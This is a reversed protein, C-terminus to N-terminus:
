TPYRGGLWRVDLSYKGPGQTAMLLGFLVLMGAPFAARVGNQADVM